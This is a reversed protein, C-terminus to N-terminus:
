FKCSTISTVAHRPVHLAFCRNVLSQTVRADDTHDADHEISLVLAEHELQDLVAGVRGEDLSDGIFITQAHCQLRVLPM